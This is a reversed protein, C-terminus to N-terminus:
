LNQQPLLAESLPSGVAPHLSESSPESALDEGNSGLSGTKHAESMNELRYFSSLSM